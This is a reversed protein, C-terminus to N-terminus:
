GDKVWVSFSMLLHTTHFLFFAIMILLTMNNRNKNSYIM